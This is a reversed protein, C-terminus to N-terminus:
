THIFGRGMRGQLDHGSNLEEVPNDFSCKKISLVLKWYVISRLRSTYQFVLDYGYVRDMGWRFLTYTVM